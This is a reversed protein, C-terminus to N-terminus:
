ICTSVHYIACKINVIIQETLVEIFNRPKWMSLHNYFWLLLCKYILANLLLRHNIMLYISFNCMVILSLLHPRPPIDYLQLLALKSIYYIIRVYIYGLLYLMHYHCIFIPYILLPTPTYYRKDRINWIVSIIFFNHQINEPDSMRASGCQLVSATAAPPADSHKDSHCDIMKRM